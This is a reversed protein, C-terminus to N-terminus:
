WGLRLCDINKIKSVREWLYTLSYALLFLDILTYYNGGGGWVRLRELLGIQNGTSM